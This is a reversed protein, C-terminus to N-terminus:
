LGLYKSSSDNPMSELYFNTVAISSHGLTDRVLHIPANNALAHQAHAHRLWHCSVKPDLDARIAASKIIVHGMKRGIGFVPKDPNSNQRLPEVEAWIGFPVLVFRVKDGKGVISVQVQGTPQIQFSRWTLSCLESVRAGTAYMLRLFARNRPNNERDILRMVEMQSLIRQALITPTKPLRLAAAVNFPTYNLKTSFTFLSKIANLKRKLTSPKVGQEVLHTQYSQLEELTISRMPVFGLFKHFQEIDRRYAERTNSNRGHLWMEILKEDSNARTLAPLTISSDM